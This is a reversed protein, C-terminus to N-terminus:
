KYKFIKLSTLLRKVRFWKPEMVLRWVGELGIKQIMLPARKLNGSIFEFTGGCCVGWKIGMQDLTSFNDNLWREQKGFGFGVFIIHPNFAKITSIINEANEDSFPYPEYKPSFGEIKIDPYLERIKKVALTNSSEKGGLFFVRMGSKEAWDCFDYAIDSGSIKEIGSDPYKRKFIWFPIQGDLSTRYKNVIELLESDENSKVICEANLPVLVQMNDETRLLNKKKLETIEINCLLM